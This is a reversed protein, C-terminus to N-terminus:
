SKADALRDAKRKRRHIMSSLHYAAILVAFGFSGIAYYIWITNDEAPITGIKGYAALLILVSVIAYVKILVFIIKALLNARTWIEMISM